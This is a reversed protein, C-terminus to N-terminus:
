RADDCGRFRQLRGSHLEGGIVGDARTRQREVERLDVAVREQLDLLLLLQGTAELLTVELGPVTQHGRVETEHHLDGVLVAGVADAHGVEDLLPVDPQHLRYLLEVGVLADAEDGVGDPPDPGVDLVVDQLGPRQHLEPVVWAWRFSKKLRARVRRSSSFYLEPSPAM